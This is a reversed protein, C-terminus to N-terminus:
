GLTPAVTKDYWPKFTDAYFDPANKQWFEGHAAYYAQAAKKFDEASTSSRFGQAQQNMAEQAQQLEAPVDVGDAVFTLTSHMDDMPANAPGPNKEAPFYLAPDPPNPIGAVARASAAIGKGWAEEFSGPVGEITTKGDKTLPQDFVVRLDKTAEYQGVKIATFGQGFNLYHVLDFAKELAEPSLDPNFAPGGIDTARGNYFGNTGRPLECFGVVEDLPKGTTQELGLLSEPSAPGRTYFGLGNWMVATAGTAFAKAYDSDGLAADTSIAQDNFILARYQEALKAWMPDSTFDYITHWGQEPAPLSSLLNFGHAELMAGVAWKQLGAGKRNDKASTLGKVLTQFDDWTWGVQPEKLGLEKVLDKRYHTGMFVGFEVPLKFYKGNLQGTREAAAQTYDALQDQVKYTDMLPTIDAFLGQTFAAFTAAQSYGGVTTPNYAAPATGGAIATVLAQQNWIDLETKEIAVGPNDNMWAQLAEGYAKQAPDKTIDEQTPMASFPWGGTLFKIETAAVKAPESAVMAPSAASAATSPGSSVAPPAAAAGCAALAAGGTAMVMARLMQRRSVVRQQSPHPATRHEEPLEM